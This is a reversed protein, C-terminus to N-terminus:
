AEGNLDGRGQAPDMLAAEHVLIDLWGIDQHVTCIPLHPEGAEANRRVTRALPLRRGGRLRDGSCEGVHCGLLGPAHITRDIGSVSYPLSRSTSIRRVAKSRMTLLPAGSSTSTEPYETM